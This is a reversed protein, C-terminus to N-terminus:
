AGKFFNIVRDINNGLMVSVIPLIITTYISNIVSGPLVITLTAILTSLLLLWIPYNKGYTILMSKLDKTRTVRVEEPLAREAVVSEVTAIIFGLNLALVSLGAIQTVPLLFWVICMTIVSIFTAIVIRIPSDKRM